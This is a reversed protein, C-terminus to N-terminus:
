LGNHANHPAKFSVVCWLFDATAKIVHFSNNGPPPFVHNFLKKIVKGQRGNQQSCCGFSPKTNMDNFLPFYKRMRCSEEECLSPDTIKRTIVSTNLLLEFAGLAEYSSSREDWM